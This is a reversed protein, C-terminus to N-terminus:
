ESTEMGVDEIGGAENTERWKEESRELHRGAETRSLLSAPRAVPLREQRLVLILGRELSDGVLLQM